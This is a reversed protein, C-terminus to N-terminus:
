IKRNVKKCGQVSSCRGGPPEDTGRGPKQLRDRNLEPESPARDAAGLRSCWRCVPGAVAAGAPPGASSSHGPKVRLRRCRESVSPRPDSFRNSHIWMFCFLDSEKKRGSEATRLNRKQPDSKPGSPQGSTWLSRLPSPRSAPSPSVTARQPFKRWAAPARWRGGGDAPSPRPSPVGPVTLIVSVSPDFPLQLTFSIVSLYLCAVCSLSSVSNVTLFFSTNCSM